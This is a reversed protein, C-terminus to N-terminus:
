SKRSKPNSSHNFMWGFGVEFIWYYHIIMFVHEIDSIWFLQIQTPNNHQIPNSKKLEILDLLGIFIWFDLKKQNEFNSKTPHEIM